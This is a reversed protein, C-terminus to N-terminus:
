KTIKIVSYVGDDISYFEVNKFDIEAEEIITEIEQITRPIILPWQVIHLTFDLQPHTDRMNGFILVGGPKLLGYAEKLFKSAGPFRLTRKYVWNDKPIYEFFGLIDIVDQSERKIM